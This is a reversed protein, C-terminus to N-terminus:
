RWFSFSSQSACCPLSRQSFLNREERFVAGTPQSLSPAFVMGCREGFSVRLTVFAVTRADGSQRRVRSGLPSFGAAVVNDARVPRAIGPKRKSLTSAPSGADRREQPGGSHRYDTEPRTKERGARNMKPWSEKIQGRAHILTLSNANVGFLARAWAVLAPVRNRGRHSIEVPSSAPHGPPLGCTSEYWRIRWVLWQQPTM